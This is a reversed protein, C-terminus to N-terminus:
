ALLTAADRRDLAQELMPQKARVRHKAVADMDRRGLHVDDGVGVSRDHVIGLGVHAIRYPAGRHELEEAAADVDAEARIGIRMVHQLAQLCEERDLAM